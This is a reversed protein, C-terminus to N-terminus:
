TSTSRPVLKLTTSRVEATVMPAVYQPYRQYKDLYVADVEDNIGPDSEEVFNVDRDIGGAWIRGQHLIQTSRFWASSRGNASRIYVNDGVRVVWITVKKRLNGDRRLSALQLEEATGIKDLEDSTWTTMLM